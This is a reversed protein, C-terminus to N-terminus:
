TYLKWCAKSAKDGVAHPTAIPRWGNNIRETMQAFTVGQQRQDQGYVDTLYSMECPDHGTLANAQVTCAHTAGVAVACALVLNRM